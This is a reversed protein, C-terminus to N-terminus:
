FSKEHENEEEIELEIDEVFDDDEEKDDNNENINEDLDGDVTPDYEVENNSQREVRESGLSEFNIEHNKGVIEKLQEITKGDAMDKYRNTASSIDPKQSFDARIFYQFYQLVDKLLMEFNDMEYILIDIRKETFMTRECYAFLRDIVAKALDSTYIGQHRTELNMSVRVTDNFRILSRINKYLQKLIARVEYLSEISKTKYLQFYKNDLLYFYIAMRENFLVSSHSKIEKFSNFKYGASGTGKAM